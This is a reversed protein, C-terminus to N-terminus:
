ERHGVTGGENRSAACSRARFGRGPSAFRARLAAQWVLCHGILDFRRQWEDDGPKDRSDVHIGPILGPIVLYPHDFKLPNQELSGRSKMAPTGIGGVLREVEAQPMSKVRQWDTKDEGAAIKAAIEEASYRVM